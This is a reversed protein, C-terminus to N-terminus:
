LRTSVWDVLENQGRGHWKKRLEFVMLTDGSAIFSRLENYVQKPSSSSQILYSTKNLRVHNYEIINDVLGSYDMDQNVKEFIVALVSM